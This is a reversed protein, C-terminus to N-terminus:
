KAPSPVYSWIESELIPLSLLFIRNARIDIIRYVRKHNAEFNSAFFDHLPPILM